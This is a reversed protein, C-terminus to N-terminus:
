NCSFDHHIGSTRADDNANIQALKQAIRDLDSAELQNDICLSLIFDELHSQQTVANALEMRGGLHFLLYGDAFVDARATIKTFDM